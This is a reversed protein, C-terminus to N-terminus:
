AASRPRRLIDAIDRIDDVGAIWTFVEAPTGMLEALWRRQADTYYGGKRKVEAFIVRGHGCIVLDPFGPESRRSDYTHFV